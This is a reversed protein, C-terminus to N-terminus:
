FWHFFHLEEIKIMASVLFFFFPKTYHCRVNEKTFDINEFISIMFKAM